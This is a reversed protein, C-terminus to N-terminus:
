SALWRRFRHAEISQEIRRVFPLFRDAILVLRFLGSPYIDKQDREIGRVIARAVEEASQTPWPYPAPREKGRQFFFRTRTGIPYVLALSCPDPLELRYGEAWRHLAAKSGSYIAYGPIALQGMASAVIVTRHPRAGNIEGMKVAAYLPSIVNVQFLAAIHDWDAHSLREYYAFGANAIFVDIRGLQALAQEFMAEVAEPKGLDAVFPIVQAGSQQVRQVTQLLRQEERDVALISCPRRALFALTAAGIGSAAGTLVIRSHEIRM